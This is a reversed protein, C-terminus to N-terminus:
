ESTTITRRSTKTTAIASTPSHTYATPTSSAAVTPAASTSRSRPSTAFPRSPTSLACCGPRAQHARIDPRPPQPPYISHTKTDLELTLIGISRPQQKQINARRRAQAHARAPQWELQSDPASTPGHNLTSYSLLYKMANGAACVTLQAPLPGHNPAQTHTATDSSLLNAPPRRM